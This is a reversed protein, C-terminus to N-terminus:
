IINNQTYVICVDYSCSMLIIIFILWGVRACRRYSIMISWQDSINSKNGTNMNSNCRWACYVLSFRSYKCKGVTTSAIHVGATVVGLTLTRGICMGICGLVLVLSLSMQIPAPRSSHHHEEHNELEVIPVSQTNSIEGQDVRRGSSGNWNINQQITLKGLVAHEATCQRNPTGCWERAAM